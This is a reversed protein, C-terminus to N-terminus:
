LASFVCVKRLMLEHIMWHVAPVFFAWVANLYQA